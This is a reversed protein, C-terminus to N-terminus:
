FPLSPCPLFQSARPCEGCPQLAGGPRCFLMIYLLSKPHEKEVGPCDLLQQLAGQLTSTQPTAGVRLM